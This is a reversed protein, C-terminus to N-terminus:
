LLCLHVIFLNICLFYCCVFHYYTNTIRYNKSQWRFRSPVAACRASRQVQSWCTTHEFGFGPSSQTIVKSLNNVGVYRQWWAMYSPAPWPATISQPRSPLQLGPPVYHCGVAPPHSVTVQPSVAQVGPDAGHGVSLLSYTFGKGQGVCSSM